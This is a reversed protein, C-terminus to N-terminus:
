LSFLDSFRFLWDIRTAYCHGSLFSVVAVYVCIIHASVTFCCGTGLCMHHTRICHPLLVNFLTLDETTKLPNSIAGLLQISPVWEVM